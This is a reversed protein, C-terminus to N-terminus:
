QTPPQGPAPAVPPPSGAAMPSPSGAAPAQPALPAQPATQATPAQAQQLVILQDIWNRVLQLRDEPCEDLVLMNYIGQSVKQIQPLNIMYPEPLYPTGDEVMESLRMECLRLSSTQINVEQQLDPDLNLLEMAREQSLWNRAVYDDITQVRGAVDDPLSSVADCDIRYDTLEIEKFKMIQINKGKQYQVEMDKDSDKMWAKTIHVIVEACNVFNQEWAKSVQNFRTTEIDVMERIAAGSADPGLPNTSTASTQSLGVIQFVWSIHQGVWQFFSSPLPEPIAIEPPVNGRFKIMRGIFNSLLHDEPTQSGDPVLWIPMGVLSYSQAAVNLLDDLSMQVSFVEETISRGYFGLPRKYWNFTVIPFIPLEYVEKLLCKDNVTVAYVGNKLKKSSPLHWSEKVRVMDVINNVDRLRNVPNTHIEEILQEQKPFKAILEDKSIMRVRHMSRPHGKMGDYDAVRLEFTPVWDCKVEDDQVYFHLGGTGYVCADRFQDVSKDYVKAKQMVGKCFKTMHEAKLKDFYSKAGTTIFYPQPNDKAIKAACADIVSQILNLRLPSDNNLDQNTNNLVNAGWSMAEWNGYLRAWNIFSTYRLSQEMEIKSIITETAAGIKQEDCKWWTRWEMEEKNGPAKIRKRDDAKVSSYESATTVYKSPASKSKTVKPAKAM